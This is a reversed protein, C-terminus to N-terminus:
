SRPMTACECPPVSRNNRPQPTNKTRPVHECLQSTRNRWADPHLLAYMPAPCTMNTACDSSSGPPVIGPELEDAGAHDGDPFYAFGLPHFYYNTRDAQIFNYTKGIEMGLTPSLAGECEDFQFYGLEGAYLNVKATFTCIDDTCNARCIGDKSIAALSVNASSALLAFFWVSKSQFM